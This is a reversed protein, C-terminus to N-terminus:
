LETCLLVKQVVLTHLPCVPVIPGRVQVIHVECFLLFFLSKYSAHIYCVLFRTISDLQLGSQCLRFRLSKHVIAFGILLLRSSFFVTSALKLATCYTHCIRTTHCRRHLWFCKLALKHASSRVHVIFFICLILRHGWNSAMGM